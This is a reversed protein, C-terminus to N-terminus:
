RAWSKPVKVKCVHMGARIAFILTSNTKVAGAKNILESYIKASQANPVYGLLGGDTYIAVPTSRDALLPMAVLYVEQNAPKFFDVGLKSRLQLYHSDFLPVAEATIFSDARKLTPVNELIDALLPVNRTRDGLAEILRSRVSKAFSRKRAVDTYLVYAAAAISAGVGVQVSSNYAASVLLLVLLWVVSILLGRTLKKPFKPPPAM